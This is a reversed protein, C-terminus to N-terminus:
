EPVPRRLSCIGSGQDQSHILLAKGQLEPDQFGEKSGRSTAQAGTREELAEYGAVWDSVSVYAGLVTNFQLLFTM